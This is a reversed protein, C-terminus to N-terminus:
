YFDISNWKFGNFEMSIWAFDISFAALSEVLVRNRFINRFRRERGGGKRFINRFRTKANNRNGLPSEGAGERLRLREEGGQWCMRGVSGGGARLGDLALNRFINRFRAKAATRGEGASLEERGYAM